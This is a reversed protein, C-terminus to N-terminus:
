VIRSLNFYTKELGSPMAIFSVKRNFLYWKEQRLIYPAFGIRRFAKLSAINNKDVFVIFRDVATYEKLSLTQFIANPMIRMGRYDPHTFVGEILAENEKLKPFIPGFYSAVQENQEHKFVWQRNVVNNDKTIAVHCNPISAEVLRVHRLGENLANIDSDEFLRISLDIASKTYKLDKSQIELGIFNVESYLRTSLGDFITKLQGNKLLLLSIKIRDVLAKLIVIIAIPVFECRCSYTKM